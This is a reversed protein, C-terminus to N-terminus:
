EYKWEYHIPLGDPTLERVMWLLKSQEELREKYEDGYYDKYAGIVALEHERKTNCGELLKFAKVPGVKPCGPINDVTDGILMQAFFFKLGVGKITKNDASLKITGRNDVLEPGFSPQKGCEWGYQWGPCMRLDKDRSCIITDNDGRRSWQEICMLDDAELGNSVRTNYNGLIFATLNDFHFPKEEKRTGKYAKVTAVRERFPTDLVLPGDSSYKNTRNLISFAKESGTLFLLPERTAGVDECISKIRGEFLEQVFDWERIVHRTEGTAEDTEKYEGCSGIEYRLVDADILPQM